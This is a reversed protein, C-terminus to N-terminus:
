RPPAPTGRVPAGSLDDLLDQLAQCMEEFRKKGIRRAYDAEVAEIISRGVRIVGVRGALGNVRIAPM